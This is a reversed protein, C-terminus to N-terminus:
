VAPVNPVIIRGDARPRLLSHRLTQQGALAIIGPVEDVIQACSPDLRHNRCPLVSPFGSLNVRFAISMAILDFSEEIPDLIIPTHCGSM